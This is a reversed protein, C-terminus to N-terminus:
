VYPTTPLTLHTYSVPEPSSKANRFSKRGLICGIPIECDVISEKGYVLKRKDFLLNKFFEDLGLNQNITGWYHAMQELHPEERLSFGM